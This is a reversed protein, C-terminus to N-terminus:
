APEKPRKPPRTPQFNFRLKRMTEMLSEEPPLEPREELGIKQRLKSVEAVNIIQSRARFPVRHLAESADSMSIGMGRAIQDTSPFEGRCRAFEHLFDLLTKTSVSM